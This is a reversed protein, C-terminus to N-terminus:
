PWNLRMQVLDCERVMGGPFYIKKNGKQVAFTDYVYGHNFHTTHIATIQLVTKYLSESNYLVQEEISFKPTTKQKECALANKRKEHCAGCVGCRYEAKM